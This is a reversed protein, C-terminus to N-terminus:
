VNSQTHHHIKFKTTWQIITRVYMNDGYNSLCGAQWILMDDGVTLILLINPYPLSAKFSNYRIDLYLYFKFAQKTHAFSNLHLGVVM